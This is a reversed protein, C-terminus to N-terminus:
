ENSAATQSKQKTIYSSCQYIIRKKRKTVSILAVLNSGFECLVKQLTSDSTKSLREVHSKFIGVAKEYGDLDKDLRQEVKSQLTLLSEKLTENIKKVREEENDNATMVIDEHQITHEEVEASIPLSFSLCDDGSESASSLPKFWHPDTKRGTGLHMFIARMEPSEIPVVDFCPIHQSESVIAKHKCPGKLQGLYCQCLRLEMNVIYQVDKKTESPVIFTSDDIKVISNVDISTTKSLYRSKQSRLRGTLVNNAMDICKRAYHQSDDMVVKLLDLLNYARHRNFQNEKTWRFSSEVINTTNISSTPLHENIRYLLSWKDRRPLIDEELHKM